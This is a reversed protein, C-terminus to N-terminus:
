RTTTATTPSVSPKSTAQAPAAPRTTVKATSKAAKQELATALRTFWEVTFKAPSQGEVGVQASDYSMHQRATDWYRLDTAMQVLGANDTVDKSIENFIYRVGSSITAPPFLELVAGGLKTGFTVLASLPDVLGVAAIQAINAPTLVDQAVSVAAQFGMVGVKLVNRIIDNDATSRPDTNEALRGMLTKNPTAISFKGNDFKIDNALASAGTRLVSGGLATAIDSVTRLPDQASFHSQGGINAVVRALPADAPTSCGLDGANCWSAVRGSLAGYGNSKSLPTSLGGGPAPAVAGLQLGALASADVGPPASPSLRQSVVTGPTSTTTSSSPYKAASSGAGTPFIEAKNPRIPSSFLSVAAVQDAKAPANPERGGIMRAIEDAIQAGQSYGVIALKSDPCRGLYDTIVKIGTTVGSTMSQIYTATSFGFDASYPVFQRSVSGRVSEGLLPKTVTDGLFGSDVTPNANDGSQGTGQFGIVHLPTCPIAAEGQPPRGDHAEAPPPPAPPQATAPVAGLALAASLAAVACVVGGRRWLPQPNKM